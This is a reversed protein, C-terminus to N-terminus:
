YQPVSPDIHTSWADIGGDLTYVKRHGNGLAQSAAPISRVGHHCYFVIPMDKDLTELKAIGAADLLTSGEIKALALEAETRVDFLHHPEGLDRMAKYGHVDIHKVAPPENPNDIIIGGGPGTRFDLALGEAREASGADVLVTLGNTTVQFDGPAESSMGFGYEFRPSIQLRPLGGGPAADMAERIATVFADTLTLTPAVPPTYPIGMMTHLEGTSHLQTIIDSGGIFEQNVYLQPITPWNSYDKIGQRITPDALVNVTEFDVGTSMLAEVSRASFGCQPMQKDGKMFLVVANDKILANITAHSTSM